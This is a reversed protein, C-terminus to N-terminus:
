LGLDKLDKSVAKNAFKIRKEFFDKLIDAIKENKSLYKSEVQKISEEVRPFDKALSELNLSYLNGADFRLATIMTCSEGLIDRLEPVNEKLCNLKTYQYPDPSDQVLTDKISIGEDEGIPTEISIPLNHVNALCEIIQVPFSLENCVDTIDPESGREYEIQYAIRVFKTMMELIQLPLGRNTGADGIARAMKKYIDYSAYNNFTKGKTPDFRHFSQMLSVYGIGKLDEYEVLPNRFTHAFKEITTINCRIITDKLLEAEKPKSDKIKLYQVFLEDQQEPSIENM